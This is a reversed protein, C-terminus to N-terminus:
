ILHVTSRQVCSDVAVNLILCLSYLIQIKFPSVASSSMTILPTNPLSPSFEVLSGGAVAALTTLLETCITSRGLEAWNLKKKLSKIKKM